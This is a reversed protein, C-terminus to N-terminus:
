RRQESTVSRRGAIGDPEAVDEEFLSRSASPTHDEGAAEEFLEDIADVDGVDGGDSSSSAM